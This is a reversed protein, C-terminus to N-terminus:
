NALTLLYYQLAEDVIISETKSRVDLERLDRIMKRLKSLSIHRMAAQAKEAVFPRIRANRAIDSATKGQGAKVVAFIYLQWVLMAMIQQPEVGQARQDAYLQQMRVTNGAFAADLLDFIRSTPSEETLLDITQRTLNPAYLLLKDIENQVLLQDAGTRKEVHATDGVRQILYRADALSLTGSQEKAYAVAWQALGNADLEKFERFETLKQLQKYYSTRKDLKAEVILVDTSESISSLFAEFKETFDKNLSAGRVVVLKRDCLFPISSAAELIREYTVDEGSLQEVAMDGHDHEFDAVFERGARLRESDNEGCLTTIVTRNYGSASRRSASGAFIVVSREDSPGLFYRCM